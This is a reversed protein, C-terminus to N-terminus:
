ETREFGTLAHMVTQVHVLILGVPSHTLTHTDTHSHTHTQIHIHTLTLTYTHTDAHTHTHVHTDNDVSKEIRQRQEELENRLGMIVSELSRISGHCIALQEIMVKNQRKLILNTSETDAALNIQFATSLEDYVEYETEFRQLKSGLDLQLSEAIIKPLNDLVRQPLNTKLYTSTAEM